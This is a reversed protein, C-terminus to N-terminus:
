LLPLANHMLASNASSLVSHGELRMAMMHSYVLSDLRRVRIASSFSIKTQQLDPIEAVDM